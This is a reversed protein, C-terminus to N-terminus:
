RGDGDEDKDKPIYGRAIDAIEDMWPKVNQYDADTLSLAINKLCLGVRYIEERTM